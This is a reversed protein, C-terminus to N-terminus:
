YAVRDVLACIPAKLQWYFKFTLWKGLKATRSARINGGSQM